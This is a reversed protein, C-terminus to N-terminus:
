YIQSKTSSKNIPTKSYRSYFHTDNHIIWYFYNKEDFYAQSKDLSEKLSRFGSMSISTSKDKNVQVEIRGLNIFNDM